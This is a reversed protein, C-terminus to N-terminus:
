GNGPKGQGGEEDGERVRQAGCAAVKDSKDM